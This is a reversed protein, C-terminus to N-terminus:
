PLCKLESLRDGRADVATRKPWFQAQGFDLWKGQLFTASLSLSSYKCMHRVDKHAAEEAGVTIQNVSQMGVDGSKEPLPMTLYDQWRPLSRKSSFRFGPSAQPPQRGVRVKRKGISSKLSIIVSSNPPGVKQWVRRPRGFFSTGYNGYGFDKRIWWAHM